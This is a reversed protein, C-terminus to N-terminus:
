GRRIACRPDSHRGPLRARVREDRVRELEVTRELLEARRAKLGRYTDREDEDEDGLWERARGWDGLLAEVHSMEARAQHTEDLSRVFAEPFLREVYDHISM